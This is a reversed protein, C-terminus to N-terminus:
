DRVHFNRMITLIESLQYWDVHVGASEIEKVVDTYPYWRLNQPLFKLIVNPMKTLVSKLQEKQSRPIAKSVLQRFSPFRGPRPEIRFVKECYDLYAQVAKKLGEEVKIPDANDVAALQEAAMSLFYRVESAYQPDQYWLHFPVHLESSESPNEDSRLWMLENTVKSKGQYCMCLEFLIEGEHGSSFRKTAFLKMSRIWAERRCVAYITSPTYPNMHLVMREFPSEQSVAYNMEESHIHVQKASASVTLQPTLCKGLGQGMCAILDKSRELERISGEVASPIFFEDDALLAVYETEVLDVVKGLRDHYPIPMHHYHINPAFHALADADIARASGDLVHVTVERGSWYRMNRQAYPQRNYTPIVLTLKSLLSM